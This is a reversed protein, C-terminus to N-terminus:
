RRVGDEDERVEGVDVHWRATTQVAGREGGGVVEGVDEAIEDADLAIEDV